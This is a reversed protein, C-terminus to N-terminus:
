FKIRIVISLFGTFSLILGNQEPNLGFEDIAVISFLANFIGLPFGFVFKIVMLFGIGPLKLLEILKSIDLLSDRSEPEINNMM